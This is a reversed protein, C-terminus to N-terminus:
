PGSTYKQAARYGEIWLQERSQWEFLRAACCVTCYRVYFPTAGDFFAAQNVRQVADITTACLRDPCSIRRLGVITARQQMSM